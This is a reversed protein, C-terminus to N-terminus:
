KPNRSTTTPWETGRERNEHFDEQAALEVLRLGITRALERDHAAEAHALARELFERATQYLGTM